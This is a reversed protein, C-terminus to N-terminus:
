ALFDNLVEDLWEKALKDSPLNDFREHYKLLKNTLGRIKYRPIKAHEGYEFGYSKSKKHNRSDVFKFVGSSAFIILLALKYECAM